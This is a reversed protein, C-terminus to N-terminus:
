CAASAAVCAWTAPWTLGGAVVVGWGVGVAAHFPRGRRGAIGLLIWAVLLGIVQGLVAGFLLGELDVPSIEHGLATASADVGTAAGALTAATLCTVFLVRERRM